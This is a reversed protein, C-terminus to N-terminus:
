DFTVAEGRLVRKRIETRQEKTLKAPDMKTDASSGAGMGGENPRRSGSAVANSIKQATQQATYQMAGGMIEDRHVVEFATRVPVGVAVLKAFGQNQMEKDLDLSPYVQKAEDAQRLVQGWAKQSNETREREEMARKMTANERELKKVRKLQEVSMGRQLAEEEYYSKDEEIAKGMADMDYGDAGRQLGYKGAVVDLIQDLKKRQEDQKSFRGEIAKKIRADYAAKYEPDSKLLDEFSVKQPHQEEGSAAGANGSNPGADAGNGGAAGGDGGGDALLQLNLWDFNRM